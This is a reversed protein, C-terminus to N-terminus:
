NQIAHRLYSAFRRAELRDSETLGDTLRALAEVTEHDEAPESTLYAPGCGLARALRQVSLEDLTREGQEIQRLQEEGMGAAEAADALTIALYERTEHIRGATLQHNM